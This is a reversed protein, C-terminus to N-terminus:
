DQNVTAQYELENLRDQMQTMQMQEVIRESDNFDQELSAYSLTSISLLVILTLTNMKM